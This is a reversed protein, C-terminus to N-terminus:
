LHHLNICINQTPRLLTFQVKLSYSLNWKLGLHTAVNLCEFCETYQYTGMYLIGGSDVSNEFVTKLGGLFYTLNESLISLKKGKHIM